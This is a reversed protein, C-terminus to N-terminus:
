SLTGNEDQSGPDGEADPIVNQQISNSGKGIRGRM